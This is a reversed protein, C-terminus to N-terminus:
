SIKKQFLSEAGLRFIDLFPYNLSLLVPVQGAIRGCNPFYIECGTGTLRDTYQCIVDVEDTNVCESTSEAELFEIEPYAEQFYSLPFVNGVLGIRHIQHELIFRKGVELFSLIPTATETRLAPILLESRYDGLVIVDVALQELAQISERAAKERAKEQGKEMPIHCELITMERQAKKAACEIAEKIYAAVVSHMGTALGIKLPSTM